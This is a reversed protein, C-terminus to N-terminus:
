ALPLYRVQGDWDGPSSCQDILYIEDIVRGVAYGETVEFLGPMAEGAAVRDYAHRVMTEVDHTLM